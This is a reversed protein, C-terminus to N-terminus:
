VGQPELNDDIDTVIASAEEGLIAAVKHALALRQEGTFPGDTDVVLAAHSEGEPLYGIGQVEGGTKEAIASGYLKWLAKYGEVSDEAILDRLGDRAMSAAIRQALNGTADAGGFFGALATAVALQGEARFEAPGTLDQADDPDAAVGDNRRAYIM